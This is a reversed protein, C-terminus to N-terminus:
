WCPKGNGWTWFSLSEAKVKYFNITRNKKKSNCSICLVQFNSEKNKGGKSLPVIHDICLIEKKTGCALCQEGLKKILKQNRTMSDKIEKRKSFIACAMVSLTPM